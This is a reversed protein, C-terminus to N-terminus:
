CVASSQRWSDEGWLARITVLSPPHISWQAYLGRQWTQPDYTTQTELDRKPRPPRVWNQIFKKRYLVAPWKRDSFFFGSYVRWPKDHDTDQSALVRPLPSTSHTCFVNKKRTYAAFLLSGDSRAAISAPQSDQKTEQKEIM